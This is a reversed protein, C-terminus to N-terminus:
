WYRKFWPSGYVKAVKVVDGPKPAHIMKGGGIYIGVHGRYCVLDGPLASAMNAVRKGGAGQAGSSHSLSVGIAQHARMTLGSCDLGSRSTGGWKYPVGLYSRAAEVIKEGRAANKAARIQADIEAIAAEKQKITLELEEKSSTLESKAAQIDALEAELLVKREEAESLIEGSNDASLLTEVLNSKGKDSAYKVHILMGKYMKEEETEVGDLNQNIQDAKHKKTVFKYDVTDINKKLIALEGQLFNMEQRIESKNQELSKVDPAALVPTSVALAALISVSFCKTFKNM